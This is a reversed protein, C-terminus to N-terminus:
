LHFLTMLIYNRATNNYRKIIYPVKQITYPNLAIMKNIAKVLNKVSKKSKSTVVQVNHTVRPKKVFSKQFRPGIILKGHESKLFIVLAMLTGIKESATLQSLRTFNRTFYVRPFYEKESSRLNAKSLFSEM